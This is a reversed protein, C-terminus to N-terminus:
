DHSEPEVILVVSTAQGETVVATQPKVKTEGYLGVLYKGPRINALRLRGAEDTFLPGADLDRVSRFFLVNKRRDNVITPMREPQPEGGSGLVQIELTGGPTLRLPVPGAADDGPVVVNEVIAPALGPFVAYLDYTDPTINALTAVGDEGSQASSGVSGGSDLRKGLGVEAGALPRDDPGTAVVQLKLGRALIVDGVSRDEDRELSISDVIQTAYRDDEMQLRYKGPSLGYFRFSGDKDSDAWNMRAFEGRGTVPDRKEDPFVMDYIKCGQVPHNSEDLVRGRISGSSFRLDLTQPSGPGVDIKVLSWALLDPEKYIRAQYRGARSVRITYGADEDALVSQWDGTPEDPSFSVKADPVPDEGLYVHGRVVVGGRLDLEVKATEAPRVIVRASRHTREEAQPGQVYLWIRYVGPRVGEFSFEGSAGVVAELQHEREEPTSRTSLEVKATAGEPLGLVTGAIRGSNGLVLDYSARGAGGLLTERRIAPLYGPASGVLIARGGPLDDLRWTGDALTRTIAGLSPRSTKSGERGVEVQAAGVPRDGGAALVRGRISVSEPLVVDIRRAKPEGPLSVIAADRPDDSAGGIRIRSEAAGPRHLTLHGSPSRGFLTRPEASSDTSEEPALPEVRLTVDQVPKRSQRRVLYLDIPRSAVEAPGRSRDASLRVVGLDAPGADDLRVEAARFGDATLTLRDIGAAVDPIAFRGDREVQVTATVRTRDLARESPVAVVELAAPADEGQLRGSLTRTRQLALPVPFRDKMDWTVEVQVPPSRLGSDTRAVLEVTGYRPLGDLAFQRGDASFAGATWEVGRGDEKKWVALVSGSSAKEDEPFQVEGALRKGAALRITYEARGPAIVIPMFTTAVRGPASIRLAFTGDPVADIKMLGDAGSTAHPRLRDRLALLVPNCIALPTLIAQAADLPEDDETLAHLVLTNGKSLSLRIPRGEEADALAAAYGSATVLLVKRDERPDDSGIQFSGTRNTQVSSGKSAALKQHFEQLPVAPNEESGVFLDPCDGAPHVIVTEVRAGAIPSGYQDSVAGSYPAVPQASRPPPTSAADTSTLLLCAFPVATLRAALPRARRSTAPEPDRREEM